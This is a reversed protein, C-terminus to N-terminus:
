VDAHEDRDLAPHRGNGGHSSGQSVMVILLDRLALVQADTLGRLTMEEAMGPDGAELLAARGSDTLHVEHRRRDEDHPRRVVYGQRELRALIRSMTQETVESSLALDRQSLPGGALLYLVPLSAHNLDWHALHANWDREIRRAVATFLRGTPWQGPTPAGPDEGPPRGTGPMMPLAATAAPDTQAHPLM